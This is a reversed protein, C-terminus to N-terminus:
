APMGKARRLQQWFNKVGWLASTVEHNLFQEWEQNGRKREETAGVGHDSFPLRFFEWLNIELHSFAIVKDFVQGM